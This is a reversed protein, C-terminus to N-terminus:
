SKRDQRIFGRSPLASFVKRKLRFYDKAVSNKYMGSKNPSTAKEKWERRKEMIKPLHAYFHFHARLIATFHSFGRSLLFHGAAMGDMLMRKFLRKRYNKAYDNKVIIALNNRFNLYTKFSNQASLTGGGMHFVTSEPYCYICYGENKLRWCLDIEEMHAFLDEDFGTVEKFAKSRVVLCAGTAWFIERDDNHQGIDRECNDFLRGRCFPYGYKDIFGGAAGAYEFHDKKNYNLIKPQAAALYPDQDLKDLIPELYNATVECDSNLIVYYEADIQELARNYGGAFGYNKNLKVVQVTPFENELLDLSTDSSGNDAVFVKAWEPTHKVVSPLFTALHDAGNYNLIVVAARM